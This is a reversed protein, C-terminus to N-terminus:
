LLLLGNPNIMRLLGCCVTVDFVPFQSRPRCFFINEMKRNLFSLICCILLIDFEQQENFLSLVFPAAFIHFYNAHFKRENTIQTNWKNEIVFRNVFKINDPDPNIVCHMKIFAKFMFKRFCYFNKWNVTILCIFIM